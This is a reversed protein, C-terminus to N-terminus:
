GTVGRNRGLRFLAWDEGWNRLRRRDLALRLLALAGALVTATALFTWFAVLVGDMMAGSEDTPPAM